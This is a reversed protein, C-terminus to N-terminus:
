ASVSWGVLPHFARGVVGGQELCRMGMGSTASAPAISGSFSAAGCVGKGAIEPRGGYGVRGMWTQENRRAATIAGRVIDDPCCKSMWAFAEVDTQRSWGGMFAAAPTLAHICRGRCGAKRSGSSVHFVEDDLIGDAALRDM